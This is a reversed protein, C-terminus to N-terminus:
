NHIDPNDQDYEKTLANIWVSKELIKVTHAEYPEVIVGEDKEMAFNTIEGTKVNKVKVEVKGELVFILETSEKHYHGGRATGPQSTFKNIERWTLGSSINEIKGRGKDTKKLIKLSEKIEYDKFKDKLIRLVSVFMYPFAFRPPIGKPINIINVGTSKAMKELKGGSTIVIRNGSSKKFSSLTEETNGSYSIFITLDDQGVWHPIEYGRIIDIRIDDICDKVIDGVIASGGMGVIVVNKYPKIEPIQIRLAEEYLGTFDEYHAMIM